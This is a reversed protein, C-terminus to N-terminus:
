HCGCGGDFDARRASRIGQLGERLILGALGIGAVADVWWLTPLALYLVSGAFLVLSLHICALSCAADSRLAASDLVRATRLKARWLFAMFSLSLTSILLGPLTTDPHHGQILQLASGAVISSALVLFLVGIALTARRERETARARLDGRLRWLIVLASAVEVLSDLGFGWLAVSDESWGFAISVAGELLNYAVTVWALALARRQWRGSEAAPGECRDACADSM